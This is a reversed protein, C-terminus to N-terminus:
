MNRLYPLFSESIDSIYLFNTLYCMESAAERLAEALCPVRGVKVLM